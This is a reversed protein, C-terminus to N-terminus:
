QTIALLLALAPEAFRAAWRQILSWGDCKMACRRSFRCDLWQDVKFAETEHQRDCSTARRGQDMSADLVNPRALSELFQSVNGRSVVRMLGDYVTEDFTITRRKAYNGIENSRSVCLANLMFGLM